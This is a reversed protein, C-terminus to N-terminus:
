VFSLMYIKDIVRKEMSKCLPLLSMESDLIIGLYNYHKVYKIETNNIMFLRPNIIKSLRNRTGVIM